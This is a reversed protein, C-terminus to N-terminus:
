QGAKEKEVEGCPSDNKVEDEGVVFHDPNLLQQLNDRGGPCSSQDPGFLKFLPKWPKCALLWPGNLDTKVVLSLKM